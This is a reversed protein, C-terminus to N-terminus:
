LENRWRLWENYQLQADELSFTRLRNQTEWKEGTWCLQGVMHEGTKRNRYWVIRVNTWFSTNKHLQRWDGHQLADKYM